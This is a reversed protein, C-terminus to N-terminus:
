IVRDNQPMGRRPLNRYSWTLSIWGRVSARLNGRSIEKSFSSLLLLFEGVRPMRAPTLWSRLPCAGHDVAVATVRQGHDTTPTAPARLATVREALGCRRYREPFRSPRLWRLPAEGGDSASNPTVIASNQPASGSTAIAAFSSAAHDGYDGEPVPGFRLRTLSNRLASRIHLDSSPRASRAMEAPMANPPRAHQPRRTAASARGPSRASRWPRSGVPLLGLLTRAGHRANARRGRACGM